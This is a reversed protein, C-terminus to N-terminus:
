IDVKNWEDVLLFLREITVMETDEINLLHFDDLMEADVRVLLCPFIESVIIETKCHISQSSCRISESMPFNAISWYLLKNLILNARM